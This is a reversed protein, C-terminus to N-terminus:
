VRVQVGLVIMWGAILLIIGVLSVTHICTLLTKYEARSTAVGALCSGLFFSTVVMVLYFGRDHLEHDVWHIMLKAVTGSVHTTAVDTVASLLTVGDVMGSFFTM